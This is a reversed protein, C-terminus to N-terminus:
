STTMQGMNIKLRQPFTYKTKCCSPNFFNHDSECLQSTLFFLDDVITEKFSEQATVLGSKSVHRMNRRHPKMEFDGLCRNASWVPIHNVVATCMNFSTFDCHASHCSGNSAEQLPLCLSVIVKTNQPSKAPLSNLSTMWLWVSILNWRIQQSWHYVPNDVHMCSYIWLRPSCLIMTDRSDADPM